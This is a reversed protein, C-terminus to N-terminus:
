EAEVGEEDDGRLDEVAGESGYESVLCGDDSGDGDADVQGERGGRDSFGYESVFEADSSFTTADFGEDKNGEEIDDLVAEKKRKLLFL